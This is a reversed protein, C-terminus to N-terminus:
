CPNVMLRLDNIHGGIAHGVQGALAPGIRHMDASHVGSLRVTRLEIQATVIHLSQRGFVRHVQSVAVVQSRLPLQDGAM